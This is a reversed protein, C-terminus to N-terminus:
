KGFLTAVFSNGGSITTSLAGTVGGKGKSLWSLAAIVGVIIVGTTLLGIFANM